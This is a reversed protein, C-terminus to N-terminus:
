KTVLRNTGRSPPGYSEAIIQSAAFLRRMADEFDAKRATSRPM